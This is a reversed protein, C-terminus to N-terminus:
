KRGTHNVTAAIMSGIHSIQNQIHLRHQQKSTIDFTSRSLSDYPHQLHGVVVVQVPICRVCCHAVEWFRATHNDLVGVRTPCGAPPVQLLCVGQSDPRVGGAGKTANNGEVPLSVECLQRHPTSAMDQCVSTLNQLQCATCLM